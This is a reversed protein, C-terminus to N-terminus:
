GKVELREGKVEHGACVVKGEALALVREVLAAAQAKNGHPLNTVVKCGPIYADGTFIVKEDAYCISSPNHGPTEYVELGCLKDGEKVVQVNPCDISVPSGHYLSLNLKDDALAAKGWENTYIAVEPFKELLAPLGYIHDFHAHTLLVGEVKLDLM